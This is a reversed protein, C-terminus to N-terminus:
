VKNSYFAGLSESLYKLQLVLGSSSELGFFFFHWLRVQNKKQRLVDIYQGYSPHGCLNDRFEFM